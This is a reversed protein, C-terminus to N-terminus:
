YLLGVEYAWKRQLEIHKCTFFVMLVSTQLICSPPILVSQGLFDSLFVQWTKMCLEKPCFTSIGGGAGGEGGGLKRSGVHVLAMKVSFGNVSFGDELLCCHHWAVPM